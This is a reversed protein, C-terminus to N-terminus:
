WKVFFISEIESGTLFVREGDQPDVFILGANSYMAVVAHANGNYIRIYWVEAIALTEQFSTEININKSAFLAKACAVYLTAMNNCDYRANWGKIGLNESVRMFEAQFEPLYKIDVKHYFQDGHIGRLRTKLFLAEENLPPEEVSYYLQGKLSSVLVM